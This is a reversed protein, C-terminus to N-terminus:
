SPRILRSSSGPSRRLTKRPSTVREPQVPETTSGVGITVSDNKAGYIECEKCSGFPCMVPMDADFALVIQQAYEILPKVVEYDYKVVFEKAGQNFKSEYLFIIQTYDLGMKEAIYLYLQGQRIHSPFPEKIDKWLGPLDVSQGSSNAKFIEPAEIRATGTGVSKIEILSKLRPVGGDAHGYIMHEPDQLGIEKYVMFQKEAGCIRCGRPAIANMRGHCQQCQWQGGLDGMEWLRRQWKDHIYHGEDFINLLQVGISEPHKWYPDALARCREIRLYTSRPCWGAKAMESPHIIDQRRTSPKAHEKLM